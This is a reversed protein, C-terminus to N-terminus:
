ELLFLVSINTTIELEGIPLITSIDESTETQVDALQRNFRNSM